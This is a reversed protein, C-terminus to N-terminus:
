EGRIYHTTIVIPKRAYQHIGICKIVTHVYYIIHINYYITNSREGGYHLDDYVMVLQYNRFVKLDYCSYRLPTDYTM